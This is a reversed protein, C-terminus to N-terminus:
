TMPTAQFVSFVGGTPDMLVAFHGMNPVDIKDMLVKGGMRKTREIAAERNDILVHCLWSTPTNPPTPNFSAMQNNEKAETTFVAGAGTTEAKWGMTTTYFKKSGEMDTTNLSEWCFEGGKPMAWAGDGKADRYISMCGGQPDILTAMRGINPIDMPGNIIKAGNATATKATADVDTVSLYPNWFTPTGPPPTFMGAIQKSGAYCLTYKMGGGMDSEEFKWGLVEGYFRKAANVDTTYLERWVFRGPTHPGREDTM